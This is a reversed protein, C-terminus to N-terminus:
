KIFTEYMGCASVEIEVEDDDLPRPDFEMPKLHTSEDDLVYPQLGAYGIFKEPSNLTM